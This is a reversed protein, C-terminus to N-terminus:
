SMCIQGNEIAVSLLGNASLRPHTQVGKSCMKVCARFTAMKLNIDYM